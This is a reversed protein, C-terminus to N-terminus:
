SRGGGSVARARTRVQAVCECLACPRGPPECLSASVVWTGCEAQYRGDDCNEGLATDRVLHDRGDLATVTVAALMPGPLM